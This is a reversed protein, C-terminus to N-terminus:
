REKHGKHGKHNLYLIQFLDAELLGNFELSMGFYKASKASKATLIFIQFLGFGFVRSTALFFFINLRLPCSPVRLSVRFLGRKKTETMGIAGPHCTLM